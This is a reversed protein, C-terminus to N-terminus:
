VASQLLGDIFGEVRQLNLRSMESVKIYIRYSPDIEEDPIELYESRAKSVDGNEYDIAQQVATMLNDFLENDM